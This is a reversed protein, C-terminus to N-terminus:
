SAWEIMDEPFAFELGNHKGIAAIWEMYRQVSKETLLWEHTFVIIHKQELTQKMRNRFDFVGEINELRIDTPTYNMFGDSYWDNQWLVKQEQETLSYSQREPDDACLLGVIGEESKKLEDVMESTAIFRDLRVFNDICTVSGTIRILEEVTKNYYELEDEASITEYAPADKAHFGFRLWDTNAILEDRYRETCDSLAFNGDEVNWSYFVYFSVVIGYKEHLSKIFQLQPNDFISKYTDSHATIDEFISNSDDVSFHIYGGGGNKVSSLMGNFYWCSFFVSVVVVLAIGLFLKKSIRRM